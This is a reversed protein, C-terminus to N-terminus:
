EGGGLLLLLLSWGGGGREVEKRRHRKRVCEVLSVSIERSEMGGERRESRGTATM